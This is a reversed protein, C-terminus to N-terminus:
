PSSRNGLTPEAHRRLAKSMMWTLAICLFIKATLADFNFHEVSWALGHRHLQLWGFSLDQNPGSSVDNYFLLNIVIFILGSMTIFSVFDRISKTM